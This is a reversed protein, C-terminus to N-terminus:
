KARHMYPRMLLAPHSMDQIYCPKMAQWPVLHADSWTQLSVPICAYSPPLEGLQHQVMELHRLHGCLAWVLCLEKLYVLRQTGALPGASLDAIYLSGM